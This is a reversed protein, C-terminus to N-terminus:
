HSPGASTFAILGNLSPARTGGSAVMTTGLIAAGLALLSVIRGITSM